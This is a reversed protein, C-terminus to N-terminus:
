QLEQLQTQNQCLLEYLGSWIMFDPSDGLLGQSFNQNFETSSMQYKQEFELLDLKLNLISKQLESIQYAIINQAFKEADQVQNFIKKLKEETQPQISLQLNQFNIM